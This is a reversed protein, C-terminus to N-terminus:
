IAAKLLRPFSFENQVQLAEMFGTVIGQFNFCETALNKCQFYAHIHIYHVFEGMHLYFELPHQFWM